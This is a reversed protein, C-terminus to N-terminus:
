ASHVRGSLIAKARESMNIRPPFLALASRAAAITGINVAFTLLDGHFQMEINVTKWATRVEIRTIEDFRRDYKRIMRYKIGYAFIVLSPNANNSALAFWWPLGRVGAFAAIVPIVKGGETDTLIPKKNGGASRRKAFHCIFYIFGGVVILQLLLVAAAGLATPM